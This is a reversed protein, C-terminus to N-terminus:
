TYKSSQEGTSPDPEIHGNYKYPAYVEVGLILAIKLLVAQM